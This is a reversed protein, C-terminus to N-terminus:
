KWINTISRWCKNISRCEDLSGM